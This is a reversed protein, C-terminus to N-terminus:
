ICNWLILLSIYFIIESIQQVAGLCDGTYGGIWKNFFRLMLWKSLYMPIIVVFVIPSSFCILPIFGFVAAIIITPDYWNFNKKVVPKSKSMDTDSVYNHTIISTIAIFRSASNGSIFIAVVTLLINESIDLLDSLVIFKTLFILILAVVGYTGIRSDKMIALIKEKTWGGGFADCTDALGDEHFAGTTLVSATIAFIISLTTSFLFSSCIFIISTIGGVIWGVLPLYRTSKELYAESHDVWKPCPIRTYFMLATLFVKVEEKM